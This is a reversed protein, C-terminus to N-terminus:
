NNELYGDRNNCYQMDIKKKKQMFLQHMRNAQQKNEKQLIVSPSLDTM